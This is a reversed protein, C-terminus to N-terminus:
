SNTLNNNPLIARSTILRVKKKFFSFSHTPLIFRSGEVPLVDQTQLLSWVTILTVPTVGSQSVCKRSTPREPPTHDTLYPLKTHLCADKVTYLRPSAFMPIQQYVQNKQMKTSVDYNKVFQVLRKETFCSMLDISEVWKVTQTSHNWSKLRTMKQPAKSYM